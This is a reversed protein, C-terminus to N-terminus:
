LAPLALLKQGVQGGAVLPHHLGDESQNEGGVGLLLKVGVRLLYAGQGPPALQRHQFVLLDVTQVRDQGDPCPLDVGEAGQGGLTLGHEHGELHLLDHVPAADVESLVGNGVVKDHAVLGIQEILGGEPQANGAGALRETHFLFNHEENEIRIIVNEYCVRLSFVGGENFGHVTHPAHDPHGSPPFVPEVGHIHHVAVAFVVGNHHLRLEDHRQYLANVGFAYAGLVIGDNVATRPVQIFFRFLVVSYGGEGGESFLQHFLRLRFRPLDGQRQLQEGGAGQVDEAMVAGHVQVLPHHHEVDVAQAFLQLGDAMQDDGIGHEVADGQVPLLAPAGMDKDVLEMHHKLVLKGGGKEVGRPPLEALAVGIGGGNGLIHLIKQVGYLGAGHETVGLEDDHEVLRRAVPLLQGM